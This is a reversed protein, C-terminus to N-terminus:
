EPSPLLRPLEPVVTTWPPGAEVPGEVETVEISHLTAPVSASLHEAVTAPSLGVPWIEQALLEEAPTNEELVQV